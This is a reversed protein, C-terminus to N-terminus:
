CMGTTKSHVIKTTWWDSNFKVSQIADANEFFFNKSKSSNEFFHKVCKENRTDATCELVEAPSQRISKNEFFKSLLENSASVEIMIGDESAANVSGSLAPHLGLM